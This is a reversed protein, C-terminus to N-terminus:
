LPYNVLGGDVTYVQGTVYSAKGSMLWAALSALDDPNGMKGVPIEKEFVNQAKEISIGHTESEKVLLRNIASTKHYGPALINVTIGEAALDRSMTKAMAAVAIRLSNSLVLNQLPYKLTSSELFLIRGYKQAQMKRATMQSLQMKWRLLSKYADDWDEVSTEMFYKAPPGGANIFIGHWYRKGYKEFLVNLIKEDTIDGALYEAKAYKNATQKLKETNRAILLVQAGEDLLARAVANGFGASAGSVVFFNDNLGLDM